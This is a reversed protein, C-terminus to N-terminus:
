MSQAPERRILQVIGNFRSLLTFGGFAGSGEFTRAVTPAFLKGFEIAKKHQIHEKLRRYLVANHQMVRNVHYKMGLVFSFM